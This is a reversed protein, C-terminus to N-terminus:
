AGGLDLEVGLISELVSKLAQKLVVDLHRELNPDLGSCDIEIWMEPPLNEDLDPWGAPLDMRVKRALDLQAKAALTRPSERTLEVRVSLSNPGTPFANAPADPEPPFGGAEPFGGPDDASPWAAGEPASERDRSAQDPERDEAM